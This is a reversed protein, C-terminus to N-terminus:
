IFKALSFFNLSLPFNSTPSLTKRQNIKSAEMGGSYTNEEPLDESQEVININKISKLLKTCEAIIAKKHEAFSESQSIDFPILESSIIGSSFMGVKLHSFGSKVRKGNELINEVTKRIISSLYKKIETKSRGNQLSYSTLRRHEIDFPMDEPSGYDKNM